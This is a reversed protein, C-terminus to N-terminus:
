ALSGVNHLDNFLRFADTMDDLDVIMETIAAHLIAIDNEFYGAPVYCLKHLKRIQGEIKNVKHEKISRM